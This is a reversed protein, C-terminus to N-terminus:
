EKTKLLSSGNNLELACKSEVREVRAIEGHRLACALRHSAQGPNNIILFVIKIFPETHVKLLTACDAPTSMTCLPGSDM